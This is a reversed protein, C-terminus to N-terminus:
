LHDTFEKQAKAQWEDFHNAKATECWRWTRGATLSTKIEWYQRKAYATDWVLQGHPLDSAWQSSKRLTGQDEKVFKNCDALIEECILPLADDWAKQVKAATHHPDIQIKVPM